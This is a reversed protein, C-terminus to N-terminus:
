WLCINRVIDLLYFRVHLTHKSALKASFSKTFAVFFILVLVCGLVKRLSWSRLTLSWSLSKLELSWSWSKLDIAVRATGIFLSVLTTRKHNPGYM